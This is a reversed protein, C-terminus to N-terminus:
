GAVGSCKEREIKDLWHQVNGSAPKYSYYARQCLGAEWNTLGRGKKLIDHAQIQSLRYLGRVFDSPKEVFWTRGDWPELASRMEDDLIPANM